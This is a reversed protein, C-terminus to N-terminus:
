KHRRNKVPAPSPAAASYTKQSLKNMYYITILSFILCTTFCVRHVMGAAILSIAMSIIIEPLKLQFNKGFLTSELNGVATVFFMFMLSGLYGGFIITIPSKVLIPKYMQMGSFLLLTLISSIVFSTASNVAM